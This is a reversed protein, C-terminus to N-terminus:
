VGYGQLKVTKNLSDLAQEYAKHADLENEFTGLHRNKGNVRIKAVWKVGIRTVGTYKSVHPIHKKNTNERATIINLNRAKNNLKNFDKHNVVMNFGNPKHGHFAVAVLIHIKITENKVPSGKCLTVTHYGTSDISIARIRDQKVKPFRALSKVRGFSSVEYLGEYGKVPRFEETILEGTEPHIETLLEM